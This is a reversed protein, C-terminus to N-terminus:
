TTMSKTTFLTIVTHKQRKQRTCLPTVDDAKERERERERKYQMTKRKKKKAHASVSFM